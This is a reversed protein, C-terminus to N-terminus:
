RPRYLRGEWWSADASLGQQLLWVEQWSKERNALAYFPIARLPRGDAAVGHIVTLGGLWADRHEVRFQPDAGLEIRPEGPNDLGEWGYM